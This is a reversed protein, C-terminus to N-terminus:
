GNTARAAVCKGFANVKSGYKQRFATASAKLEAKCARAANATAQVQKASAATAKESVCKGFANSLDDNSGYLQAFTKGGNAAAFNPDDQQARCQQAANLETSVQARAVRSVCKGYANRHNATTGYLLGFAASGM